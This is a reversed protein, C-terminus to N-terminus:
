SPPPQDGNTAEPRDDPADTALPTTADDLGTHSRDDLTITVPDGDPALATLQHHIRQYLTTALEWNGDGEDATHTVNYLSILVAILSRGSITASVRESGHDTIQGPVRFHPHRGAHAAVFEWMDRHCVLVASSIRAAQQLLTSHDKTVDPTGAGESATAQQSQWDGFGTTLATLEQRVAALERRHEERATAQADHAEKLGTLLTRLDDIEDALAARVVQQIDGGLAPFAEKSQTEEEYEADVRQSPVAPLPHAPSSGADAAAFAPLGVPATKDAGPSPLVAADPVASAIPATAEAPPAPVDVTAAPRGQVTSKVQQVERRLLTIAQRVEESLEDRNAALRNRTDRLDNRMRALEAVVTDATGRQAAQGSTELKDIGKSLADQLNTSTQVLTTHLMTLTNSLDQSRAM